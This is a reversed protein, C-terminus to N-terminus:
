TGGVLDWVRYDHRAAEAGATTMLDHGCAVAADGFTLAAPCSAKVACGAAAGVPVGDGSLLVALGVARDGETSRANTVVGTHDSPLALSLPEASGGADSHRPMNM